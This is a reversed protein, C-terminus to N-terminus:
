NSPDFSELKQYDQATVQVGNLIKGDWDEIIKWRRNEKVLRVHFRAYHKSVNGDPQVLTIEYYGMEFAVRDKAWRNEFRLSISWEYGAKKAAEFYQANQSKYAEAFSIGSEDIRILQDSHIANLTQHDMSAYAEMFPKWVQTNIEKTTSQAMAMTTVLYAMGFTLRKM